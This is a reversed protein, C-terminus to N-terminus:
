NTITENLNLVISAIATWAALEESKIGEPRPLDGVKTLAEAAKVDQSYRGIQTALATQLIKLEAENPTRSLAHRWM